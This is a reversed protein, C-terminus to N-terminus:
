EQNWLSIVFRLKGSVGPSRPPTEDATAFPIDIEVSGKSLQEVTLPITAQGVDDSQWNYMVQWEAGARAPPKLEIVVTDRYLYGGEFHRDAWFRKEVEYDPVRVAITM